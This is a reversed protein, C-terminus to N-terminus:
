VGPGKVQSGAFGMASQGQSPVFSSRPPPDQSWTLDM